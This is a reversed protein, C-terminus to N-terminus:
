TRSVAEARYPRLSSITSLRSATRADSLVACGRRSGSEASAPASPFFATWPTTSKALYDLCL